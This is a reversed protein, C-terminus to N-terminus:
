HLRQVWYKRSLLSSVIQSFPLPWSSFSSVPSTSFCFLSLVSRSTPIFLLQWLYAYQVWGRVYCLKWASEHLSMVHILNKWLELSSVSAKAFKVNCLLMQKLIIHTSSPLSPAQKLASTLLRKRGSPQGSKGHGVSLALSPLFSPIHACPRSVCGHCQLKRFKAVVPLPLMLCDAWTRRSKNQFVYYRGNSRLNLCFHFPSFISLMMRPLGWICGGYGLLFSHAGAPATPLCTLSLHHAAAHCSSGAAPSPM